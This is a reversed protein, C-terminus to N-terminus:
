TVADFLIVNLGSSPFQPPHTSLNPPLHQAPTSSQADGSHQFSFGDIKQAQGSELVTFDESKLDAIPQGKSDIAVVDVVVLRTNTRLTDASQLTQPNAPSSIACSVLLMGALMFRSNSRKM